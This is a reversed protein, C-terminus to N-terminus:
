GEFSSENTAVCVELEPSPGSRGGGGPVGGPQHPCATGPRRSGSYAVSHHSDRRGPAERGCEGECERRRVQYLGGDGNPDDVDLFQLTGGAGGAWPGRGRGPPNVM